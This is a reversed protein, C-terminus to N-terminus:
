RPPKKLEDTIVLDPNDKALRDLTKAKDTWYDTATFRDKTREEVENRFGDMGEVWLTREEAKVEQLVEKRYKLFYAVGVVSLLVSAVIAEALRVKKM